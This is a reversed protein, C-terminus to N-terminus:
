VPRPELLWKSIELIIDVFVSNFLNKEDNEYM